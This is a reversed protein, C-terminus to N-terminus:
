LNFQLVTVSYAPVDWTWSGNGDGAPKTSTLNLPRPIIATANNKYNYGNPDESSLITGNVSSWSTELEVTLPILTSNINIVKLFVRGEQASSAWFLPNFDGASNRVEVSETGRYANFLRQLHYSTSLVTHAPDADFGIMNPTWNYWNWNQLSPASCSLRVVNPNREAGLIYVGESLASVMRPYAVHLQPSGGSWDVQGDPTDVQYVSYEGIMITVNPNNTEQQWNDFYDFQRVFFQPEEYHHIDWMSGPPLDITYTPNEDYASSIYIIDPYAAKLGDYLYKFRFPYGKSFWDENGIEIYKIKFPEPHGYAARKAGWYTDTSGTIFELEDLAEQLLPYMAEATGPYEDANNQNLDGLSYGAYIDLVNEMDMAESWELFELLGLGNTNHYLWNGPRSWREELPGITEWWKWRRQISAGEINNGGPWRLFRPGLDSIHQALDKRLGNKYGKFTEGFLSIQDFFYTQGAAAVPDFTIALSNNVDPASVTSVIQASVYTYNVLNWSQAPIVTSAWIEGTINSQLSVTIETSPNYQNRFQNPYIFFSVNYTQPSVPIGWWGVNAFGVPTASKNATTPIDLALVTQHSPSLPRFNDLRIRASGLPKYGTIVPAIPNCTNEQYVINNGPFGDQAGFTVDSGDFARNTLLEGYLGGDGSHNIDEFMWGYLEPATDNRVGTETLIRLSVSSSNTVARPTFSGARPKKPGAVALDSFAILALIKANSLYGM